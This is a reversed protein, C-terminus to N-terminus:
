RSAEVVGVCGEAVRESARSRESYCRDEKKKRARVGACRMVPLKPGGSGRISEQAM